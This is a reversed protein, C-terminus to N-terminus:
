KSLEDYLWAKAMRWERKVTAPSIDLARATEEITLGTFYRIKVIRSQQDDFQSLKNLAEDLALLDESREDSLIATDELSIKPKGGGRKAAARQRAYDVLIQRMAEAAIAFFHARNEFNMAEQAILKLYAENVLETAQLTHGKRERRMYNAAMSRLETYVMPFLREIVNRDGASLAILM